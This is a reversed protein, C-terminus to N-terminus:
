DHRALGSKVGGAEKLVDHGPSNVSAPDEPVRLIVLIEEGAQLGEEPRRLDAAIRPGQQGVMEVEQQPAAINGQAPQHPAQHGAIGNGKVPAVFPVAMEKLIAILGDDTLVLGIEQLQDPVNM